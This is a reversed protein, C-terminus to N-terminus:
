LLPQGHTDATSVSSNKIDDSEVVSLQDGKYITGYLINNFYVRRYIMELFVDVLLNM